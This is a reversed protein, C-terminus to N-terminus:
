CIDVDNDIIIRVKEKIEKNFIECQKEIPLIINLISYIKNDLTLLNNSNSYNTIIPIEINKKIENLHKKGNKNFGLIRIYDKFNNYDDNTINFLIYVMLRRIRNYTYNKSKINCILEDLNNSVNIYKYIRNHIEENMEYINRIDCSIIHYKIYNFYDDLYKIDNLYKLTESPVYNSINKKNKIAERISTASVIDSNLSTSHYDNTRKICVPEIPANQLMIEKIYGLGLIDNPTNITDGVIDNISNSLATPYSLGDKMYQNVINNYDKNDLQIKAIKKLKNIDNCESGFVIKNIVLTNLINMSGYCFTDASQLSFKYPLEVVLDVGYHLAIDTKDWKNILSLDGRETVSGSMVLIILSDPYLEKIKNLHYLHGNHFPNYEAIIGLVNAM